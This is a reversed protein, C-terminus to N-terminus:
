QQKDTLDSLKEQTDAHENELATLRENLDAYDAATPLEDNM